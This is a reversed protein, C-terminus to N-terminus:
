ARDSEAEGDPLVCMDLYVRSGDEADAFLFARPDQWPQGGMRHEEACVCQRLMERFSAVQEQNAQSVITRNAVVWLTEGKPLPFRALLQTAMTNKGPWAPDAVNTPSFLVTFFTVTDPPGPLVWRVGQPKDVPTPRRKVESSPVVVQFAKTWGLAFEPPRKWKNLFRGRELAEVAASRAASEDRFAHHWNCSQHLSVKLRDVVGRAGLYVEDGDTWLRWISSQPGDPTGVAFRVLQERRRPM